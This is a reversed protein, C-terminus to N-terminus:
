APDDPKDGSTPAELQLGLRAALARVTDPAHGAYHNNAFAFTQAVRQSLEALLTAWRDLAASRDIVTRDFTTTLADIAKRDGILRAYVFDTTVVDLSAALEAPHPMYSIESLVLATRHRRLIELLPEAIWRANRIEVAYRFDTPLAALYTDLRELFPKPSTFASRNFYPFQLVMPGARMGLARMRTLFLSTDAQVLPLSLVREGDPAASEGGHVISRPFKAAIIFHPPTREAWGQVMSASPMHYWTTDAEVTPFKRAYAGLQDRPALGSEYFVGAWSAESWSSTGLLINNM